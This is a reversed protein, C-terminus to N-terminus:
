MEPTWYTQGFLDTFRYVASVKMDSPITMDAIRLGGNVTIPDGMKFSDSYTGDYKYYDCLLDIVDGEEIVALKADTETEGNKYDYKAGAIYGDPNENDYVLVLDARDGNLLVPIRPM